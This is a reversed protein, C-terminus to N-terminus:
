GLRGTYALLQNEDIVGSLYLTNYFEFNNDEESKEIIKHTTEKDQKKIEGLHKAVFGKFLNIDFGEQKLFLESDEIPTWNVEDFKVTMKDSFFKIRFIPEQLTVLIIYVNDWQLQYPYGMLSRRFKIEVFIPKKDKLIIFDPTNRITKSVSDYGMESHSLHQTINEYGHRYVGYGMDRLMEEVIIEAIKGDIFFEKKVAM